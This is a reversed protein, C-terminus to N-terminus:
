RAGVPVPDRQLLDIEHRFFIERVKLGSPTIRQAIVRNEHSREIVTCPYWEGRPTVVDGPRPDTNVITYIALAM